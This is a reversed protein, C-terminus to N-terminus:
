FNFSLGADISRAFPYDIGRESRITSFRFVDRMSCFVKLNSLGVQKIWGGMFEYELYLSELALVDERQVFRSSMPSSNVDRINKFIRIDGPNAM